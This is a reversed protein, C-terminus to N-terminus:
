AAGAVFGLYLVVADLRHLASAALLLAAASVAALFGGLANTLTGVAGVMLVLLAPAFDARIPTSTAFLMVAAAASWTLGLLAPSLKVKFCFFLVPPLLVIAFAALAVPLDAAPRQLTALVGGLVVLADTIVMSSWTMGAPILEGRQRLLERVFAAAAPLMLWDYFLWDGPWMMGRDAGAEVRPLLCLGFKPV